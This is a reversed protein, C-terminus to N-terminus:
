ACWSCGLLVQFIEKPPMSPLNRTYGDLRLAPTGSQKLGINKHYYGTFSICIILCRALNQPTLIGIAGAEVKTYWWKNSVYTCLLIEFLTLIETYAQDIKYYKLM